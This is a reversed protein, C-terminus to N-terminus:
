LISPTKRNIDREFFEYQYQILQKVADNYSKLEKNKMYWAFLDKFKPELFFSIHYESGAEEQPLSMSLLLLKKVAQGRSSLGHVKMYSDIFQKLGLKASLMVSVTPNRKIYRQKSPPIKKRRM